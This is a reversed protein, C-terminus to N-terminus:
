LSIFRFDSVPSLCLYKSAGGGGALATSVEKQLEGIDKGRGKIFGRVSPPCVRTEFSVLVVNGGTARRIYERVLPKASQSLSDLLLTFPSVNDRLSLLRSILLLNHTRRHPLSQSLMSNQLRFNTARFKGCLRLLFQTM